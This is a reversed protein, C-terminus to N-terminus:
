FHSFGDMNTSDGKLCLDYVIKMDKQYPQLKSIKSVEQNM